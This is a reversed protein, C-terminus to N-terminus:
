FTHAQRKIYEDQEERSLAVWYVSWGTVRIQLSAYREPYRQAKRLTEPDYINFQVAYGGQAFFTKILNVFARLGEEGRVASPHLMVDLVAGNPTETFDLASVSNLLATAGARDQGSSPGVGPALSQRAKRGDPLAGMRRGMRWQYDLSFLAAQCAGGRGNRFTHVKHCYHDAVQRALADSAPDNNGWKPVRNLLYQRLPERGAFDDALADLVEAMGFRGEDFVAQKIGLLGDVTNALGMGVV